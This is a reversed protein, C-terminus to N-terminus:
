DQWEGAGEVVVRVTTEEGVDKLGQVDRLDKLAGTLQKLTQKAGSEAADCVAAAAHIKELLLDAVRQLAEARAQKCCAEDAPAPTEPRQWKERRAHAYVATCSVGFRRALGRVTADAESEYATRVDNWNRNM